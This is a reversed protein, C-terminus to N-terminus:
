NVGGYEFACRRCGNWSDHLSLWHLPLTIWSSLSCTSINCTQIAIWLSFLFCTSRLPILTISIGTRGVRPIISVPCLILSAPNSVGRPTPVITVLTVLTIMPTSHSSAWQIPPTLTTWTNYPYIIIKKGEHPPRRTMLSRLPENYSQCVM